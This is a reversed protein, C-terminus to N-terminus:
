KKIEGCAIRGGANGAPDTKYDDAKEHIVVSTGQEPFLSKAGSQALSVGTVVVTTKLTGDKGVVVNKLDGAHKGQPNEHGHQKKEPNFHGGASKFDPPECKGVEHIHIAHEGPPLGKVDIALRAGEKLPRLTVTGVVKGQADKMEARAMM